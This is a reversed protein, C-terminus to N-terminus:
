RVKEIEAVEKLQEGVQVECGTTDMIMWYARDPYDGVGDLILTERPFVVFKANVSQVNPFEDIYGIASSDLNTIVLLTRNKNHDAIQVSTQSIARTGM